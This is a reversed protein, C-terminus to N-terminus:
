MQYDSADNVKRDYLSNDARCCDERCLGTRKSLQDRCWIDRVRVKDVNRDTERIHEWHILRQDM